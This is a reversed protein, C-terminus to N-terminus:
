GFNGPANAGYVLPSRIIVMELGTKQAIAKLGQEAEYKSVSFPDHPQPEADESFPKGQETWEGNVKISSVFVFRKVGAQVAQKALNLTAHTNAECYVALPEQTTDKMVHARAACHVVVDVGQLAQSWDQSASLDGVVAQAVQTSLKASHSRVAATCAINKALCDQLFASGVFGTAGTILVFSNAGM